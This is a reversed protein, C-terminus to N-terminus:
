ALRVLDNLDKGPELPPVYAIALPPPRAGLSDRAGQRTAARDWADTALQRLAQARLLGRELKAITRNDADDGDALYVLEECWDPPLFCDRDELDPLGHDLKGDAGRYARGSMNGLDVGAWYATDPEFAHAMATLTTEIGEGMVIRFKPRTCGAPGALQRAGEAGVAWWEALNPPTYLRIAGGKKAGLVKKTPRPKGKMDDPLVLRGKPQSPDLWTQHVAGFRGDALQVCAVMCGTEAMIIWSKRGIDDTAEERWPHLKIEHLVPGSPAAELLRAVPIGRKELYSIVPGVAHSSGNQSAGGNLGARWDPRRSKGWVGFGAKRAKERFEAAAADRRDQEEDARRRQDALEDASIERDPKQGTIRELADVFKRGESWMVLYIVDHGGIGCKRCSWAGTRINISFRDDGIGEQPCAGVMESSSARRLKWGQREAWAIPTTELAVLKLSELAAPLSTM